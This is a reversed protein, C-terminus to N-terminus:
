IPGFGVLWIAFNHTSLDKWLTTNQTKHLAVIVSAKVIHLGELHICCVM